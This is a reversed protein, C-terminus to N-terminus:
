WKAGTSYYLYSAKVCDFNSGTTTGKVFSTGTRCSNRCQNYAPGDCQGCVPFCFRNQGWGIFVLLSLIVIIHITKM